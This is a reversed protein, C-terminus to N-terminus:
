KVEFPIESLGEDDFKKLSMGIEFLVKRIARLEYKICALEFVKAMKYNEEVSTKISFRENNIWTECKKSAIDMAEFITNEDSLM